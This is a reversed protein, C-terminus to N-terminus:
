ESAECECEARVIVVFSSSSLHTGTGYLLDLWETILNFIAQPVQQSMEAPAAAYFFVFRLIVFFILFHIDLDDLFNVASHLAHAERGRHGRKWWRWWQRERRITIRRTTMTTM